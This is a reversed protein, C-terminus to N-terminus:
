VSVKGEPTVKYVKGEDGTAVFLNGAKDEIVDWVHMADLGALPKLQHSLRLAGESSVVVHKLHAKDYHSPSHHHWVKVKAAHGVCPALLVVALTVAIFSRRM